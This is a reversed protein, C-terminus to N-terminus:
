VHGGNVPLVYAIVYIDAQVYAPLLIRVAVGVHEPDLLVTLSTRIGESTPTVAFCLHGGNVPLVYAIIHIEALLSNGVAVGVSEPDLLVTLIFRISKSTSTVPLDIMGAMLRFYM